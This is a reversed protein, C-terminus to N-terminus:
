YYNAHFKFIKIKKFSVKGCRSVHLDYTDVSKENTNLIEDDNFKERKIFEFHPTLFCINEDGIAISCPISNNGM